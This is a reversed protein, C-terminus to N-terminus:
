TIVPIPFTCVTDRIKRLGHFIIAGLNRQDRRLSAKTEEEARKEEYRMVFDHKQEETLASYENNLSDQIEM